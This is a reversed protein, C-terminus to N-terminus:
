GVLLVGNGSPDRVLVGSEHEEARHGAARAREVVAQMSMRDPLVVEFWRLGVAEPPPPPAGVGAWTNLGLHHHYGGASVFSATHGYRQVLDFGLVGCYFAEAEAIDRVHLHVHGIVTGPELGEGLEDRGDLESLIGDLDLPDTVMALRGDRLPWEERPRDRYIEIGNGDPDPLYIAESVGHDAFGQVPTRTEAIRRLSKALARRSPTLVAFHYLGTTGLVRKADPQEVLEVLDREGAGLEAAGNQRRHLRFGLRDTYFQVARDLSSVALRVRGITTEAPLKEDMGM